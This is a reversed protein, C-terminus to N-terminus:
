RLFDRLESHGGHDAWGSATSNVKTDKLNRDAGRALLFEVM